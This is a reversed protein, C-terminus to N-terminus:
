TMGGVMGAPMVTASYRRARGTLADMRRRAVDQAAVSAEAVRKAQTRQEFSQETITRDRVLQSARGLDSEAYALNARAQALTARVQALSTEFPRRDITFLPDGQKVIQGDKFQWHPLDRKLREGIEQDTYIREKAM